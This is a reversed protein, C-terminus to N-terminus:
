NTSNITSNIESIIDFDELGDSGDRGRGFTVVPNLQVAVNTIQSINNM